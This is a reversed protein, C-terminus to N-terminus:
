SMMGGLQSTVGASQMPSSPPAGVLSRQSSSILPTTIIPGLRTPRSLLSSPIWAAVGAGNVLRVSAAERRKADKKAKSAAALGAKLQTKIVRLEQTSLGKLVGHMHSPACTALVLVPKKAAEEADKLAKRAKKIKGEMEEKLTALEKAVAEKEALLAATRREEQALLFTKVALQDRLVGVEATVPFISPSVSELKIAASSKRIPTTTTSSTPAETLHRASLRNAPVTQGFQQGPGGHVLSQFLTQLMSQGIAALFQESAASPPQQPQVNNHAITQEHAAAKTEEERNRCSRIKHTFRRPRPACAPTLFVGKRKGGAGSKGQRRLSKWRVAVQLHM